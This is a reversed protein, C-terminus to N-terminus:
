DSRETLTIIIEDDSNFSMDLEYNELSKWEPYRREILKFSDARTENEMLALMQGFGNLLADMPGKLTDREARNEIAVGLTHEIVKRMMGEVVKVMQRRGKAQALDMALREDRIVQTKM